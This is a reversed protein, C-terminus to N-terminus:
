SSSFALASAAPKAPPLNGPPPARATLSPLSPLGPPPPPLSTSTRFQAVEAELNRLKAKAAVKRKSARSVTKPPSALDGAGDTAASTLAPRKRGLAGARGGRTMFVLAPDRVNDDWYTKDRAAMRFVYDWPMDPNYDPAAGRSFMAAAERRLRTFHEARCRDEAMGCLHWAEPFQMVLKRFHELYEELAAPTVIKVITAVGPLKRSLMLLANALVCWSTFWADWNPPGPVEVMAFSGDPQMTFNQFKLAKVFRMGFATWLAFDAYPAGNEVVVRQRLASVQDVSPEQGPLPPGGKVQRYTRHCEEFDQDSMLPIEGEDGQHLILNFKVKRSGLTMTTPTGSAQASPGVSSMPHPSPAGVNTDFLDLDPLGYKMRAARFLLGVQTVEVATMKRATGATPVRSSQMSSRLTPLPMTALVRLNPIEGLTTSVAQWVAVDLGCWVLASPLDVIRRLEDPFPLLSLAM